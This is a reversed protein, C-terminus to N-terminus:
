SLNVEAGSDSARAFMQTIVETAEMEEELIIKLIAFKSRSKDDVALVVM